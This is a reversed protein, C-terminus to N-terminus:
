YLAFACNSGLHRDFNASTLQILLLCDVKDKDPQLLRNSRLYALPLAFLLPQVPFFEKWLPEM